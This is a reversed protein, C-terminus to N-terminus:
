GELLKVKREDSHVYEDAVTQRTPVRGTIPILLDVGPLLSRVAMGTAM